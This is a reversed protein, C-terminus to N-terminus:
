PPRTSPIRSSGPLVASGPASGAFQVPAFRDRLADGMANCLLVPLLMCVAPFVTLWWQSHMLGAGDRIINGWSATPPQVGLGLFSLGAEIGITGAINLAALTLLMPALHPLLHRQVLRRTPVGSAEAALTFERARLSRLEDHVLRAVAYWGTLGTLLVLAWLGMPGVAGLVGLLVLLRPVSFALDLLRALLTGVRASAFAMAAGYATGVSLAIAVASLAFGLSVRTGALVRSLVDRSYPDTGFPHALSPARSKLALLDLPLNPDYPALWPAVLAVGALVALLWMGVRLPRSAAGAVAAPPMM